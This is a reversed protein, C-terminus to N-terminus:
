QFMTPSLSDDSAPNGHDSSLSVLFCVVELGSLTHGSIHCCIDSADFRFAFCFLIMSFGFNSLTLLIRPIKIMSGSSSSNLRVMFFARLFNSIGIGAAISQLVGFIAAPFGAANNPFVLRFISTYLLRYKQNTHRLIGMLCFRNELTVDCWMFFIRSLFPDMALLQEFTHVELVCDTHALIRPFSVLRFRAGLFIRGCLLM